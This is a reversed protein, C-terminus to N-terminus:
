MQCVSQATSGHAPCSVRWKGVEQRRPRRHLCLQTPSSRAVKVAGHQGPGGQLTRAISDQNASHQGPTRQTPHAPQAKSRLKRQLFQAAINASDHRAKTAPGHKLDASHQGPRLWPRWATDAILQGPTRQLPRTARTTGAERHQERRRQLFGATSGPTRAIHQAPRGQLTLAM